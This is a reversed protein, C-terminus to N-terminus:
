GAKFPVETSYTAGNVLTGNNSNKSSDLAVTGSGEDFKYYAVCGAVNSIELPERNAVYVESVDTIVRTFLGLQAVKGNLYNGNLTNQGIMSNAFTGTFTGTFTNVAQSVGDIFLEIRTPSWTALIHHFKGDDEYDVTHTALKTSGGLRYAIRLETTGNHYFVNVYNNSDVRAQWITSSTSTTELKFWVSCSGSQGTIFGKSETLDVYDDTGDLDVSFINYGTKTTSLTQALKLSQM